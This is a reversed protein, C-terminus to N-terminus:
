GRGRKGRIIPMLLPLGPVVVAVVTIAVVKSLSGVKHTLRRVTQM